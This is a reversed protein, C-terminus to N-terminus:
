QITIEVGPTDRDSTVAKDWNSATAITADAPNAGGNAVDYKMGKVRLTMAFEGQMRIVLNELGTVVQSVIQQEESQIVAVANQTLGLWKYTVPTGAIPGLDAQDAIVVPRGLTATTGSRIAVGTIEFLKETIASKVLDFYPKSHTVWCVIRDAQDGFKALGDVLDPHAITADDADVKMSSQISAIVAKMAVKFYEQLIQEGAMQGIVLSLEESSMGIKRFSDFTQAIPGIRRNLKVGIIEDQTMSGDTVATTVTPDRRSILGSVMEFFTRKEYEGKMFETLLLIAGNSAQNFVNVNRDLTEAVATHFIEDYIVFGSKTGIAM